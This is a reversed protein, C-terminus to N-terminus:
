FVLGNSHGADDKSLNVESVWPGSICSAFEYGQIENPEGKSGLLYKLGKAYEVVTAVANPAM